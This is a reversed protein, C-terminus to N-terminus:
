EVSHWQFRQPNQGDCARIFQDTGAEHRPTQDIVLLGFYPCALGPLRDITECLVKERQYTPVIVSWFPHRPGVEQRPGAEQRPDFEESSSESKDLRKVALLSFVRCTRISCRPIRVQRTKESNATEIM